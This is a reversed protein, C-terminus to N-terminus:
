VRLEEGGEARYGRHVDLRLLLEAYVPKKKKTNKKHRSAPLEAYVTKKKPQPTQLCVHIGATHLRIYVTGYHSSMYYSSM